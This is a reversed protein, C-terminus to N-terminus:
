LISELYYSSPNNRPLNTIIHSKELQFNPKTVIIISLYKYLLKLFDFM